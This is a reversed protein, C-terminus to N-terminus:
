MSTAVGILILVVVVVAFGVTVKNKAIWDMNTERTLFFLLCGM